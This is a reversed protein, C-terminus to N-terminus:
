EAVRMAEAVDARASARHAVWGGAAAVAVLVLGVLAVISWQVQPGPPIDPLPDLQAFMLQATAFALAAGLVLAVILMSGLELILAGQHQRDTLGMREALAFSIVRAQARTQMYLLLGVVALLGAAIGLLELLGFTNRISRLGPSKRVQAADLVLYPRVDSRALAGRIESANGEIWLDTRATADGLVSLGGAEQIEEDLRMASVVVSPRDLDMAPFAEISTSRVQVDTGQFSVSDIERPPGTVLVPLRDSPQELSGVLQALSRDSFDENWYMAGLATDPDIAVVDAQTGDELEAATTIRTAKTLPFPFKRPPEQELTIQAAVDSGTFLYSRTLVADELSGVVTQAYFLVGLSLTAGTILLLALSKSGALHHLALFGPVGMSDSRDRLRRLVARVVRAGLGGAGAIFLLPFVMSAMGPEPISSPDDTAAAAEMGRLLFLAGILAAIEWPIASFRPTRVSAGISTFGVAAVTSAGILLPVAAIALAGLRSADRVARPDISGPPGVASVIVYALAVGAATGTIAPLASELAARGAIGLPGAGRATLYSFEVRRRGVVFAGAAAVVSLAVLAGAVTLLTAPARLASSEHRAERVATSLLSSFPIRTQQCRRCRIASGLRTDADAVMSKVRDFERNTGEAAELGVDAGALPVEWRFRELSEGLETTLDVITSEDALVFPPPPAADPSPPYILTRLGRWYPRAPVNNLVTYVGAISVKATREGYLTVVDRAKLDLQNAVVDPLWVGDGTGPEVVEIENEFGHRSMLRIEYGNTGQGAQVTPGLLTAITPATNPTAEAVREVESTARNFERYVEAPTASSGTGASQEISIGAGYLTARDLQDELAAGANASVFMPYSSLAIALLLAGAAVAVFLTPYRLLVGPARRWLPNGLGAAV